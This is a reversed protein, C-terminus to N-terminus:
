RRLADDRRHRHVLARALREADQVAARRDRERFRHRREARDASISRSRKTATPCSILALWRRGFSSPTTVRSRPARGRRGCSAPRTSRSGRRPPFARRCRASCSPRRRSSPIVRHPDAYERRPTTEDCEGPDCVRLREPRTRGLLMERRLDGLEGAEALAGHPRGVALADGEHRLAEAVRELDIQVRPQRSQEGAVEAVGAEQADVVQGVAVVEEDARALELVDARRAVAILLHPDHLGAGCAARPAPGALHAFADGDRALAHADRPRVRM